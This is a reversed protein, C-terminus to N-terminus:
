RPESGEEAAASSPEDAIASLEEELPEVNAQQEAIAEDAVGALPEQDRPGHAAIREQCQPSVDAEHQKLCGLIRGEGPEVGGCALRVDAGCARRFAQVRRAHRLAVHCSPDLQTRNKVLCRVLGRDGSGAAACLREADAQCARRLQKRPEEGATAPGPAAVQGSGGDGAHGGAPWCVTGALLAAMGVVRLRAM